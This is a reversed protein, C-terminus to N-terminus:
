RARATAASTRRYHAPRAASLELPPEPPRTADATSVPALAPARLQVRRPLLRPMMWPMPPLHVSVVFTAGDDCGRLDRHRDSEAPIPQVRAPLRRLFKQPLLMRLLLM